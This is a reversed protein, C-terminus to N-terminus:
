RPPNIKHAHGLIGIAYPSPPKEGYHSIYAMEHWHALFLKVAYRKARAHIHAPPLMGKVYYGYADTDKSINYKELKRKAQDEFAFDNNAAMECEKREKYIKGYVDNKNGSVKVFSEGIKWCLTKLSANWPRKKGKKWEKTPDLGAFAWIHGATPARTIDIHALLGAAIVPGIGCIGKSWRGVEHASSYTDLASKIYRELRNSNESLWSLVEHPENSKSLSLIQNDSRIRNDQMNYYADVLFRAENHTLTKSALRLDKNLKEIPSVNESPQM